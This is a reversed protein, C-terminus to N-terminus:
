FVIWFNTWRVLVLQTDISVEIIPIKSTAAGCNFQVARIIEIASVFSGFSGTLLPDPENVFQDKNIFM